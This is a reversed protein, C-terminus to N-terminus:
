TSTIQADAYSLGVCGEAVRVMQRLAKFRGSPFRSRALRSCM